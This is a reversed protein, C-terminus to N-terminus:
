RGPTWLVHVDDTHTPDAHAPDCVQENLEPAEDGGAFQTVAGQEGRKASLADVEGELGSGLEGLSSLGDQEGSADRGIVWFSAGREGGSAGFEAAVLGQEAEELVL